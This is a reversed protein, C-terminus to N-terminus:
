YYEALGSFGMMVDQWPCQESGIALPLEKLPGSDHDSLHGM